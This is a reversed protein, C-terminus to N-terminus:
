AMQAWFTAESQTLPLGVQIQRMTGNLYTGALSGGLQMQALGVPLTVATFGATQGSDDCIYGGDATWTCVISTSGIAVPATLAVCAQVVSGAVIEITVRDDEDLFARVYNDVSGDSIEFLTRVTGDGVHSLDLSVLASAGEDLGASAWRSFPQTDDVVVKVADGYRVSDGPVGVPPLILCTPLYSPTVQKVSALSWQSSYDLTADSGNSMYLKSTTQRAVFYAVYNGTITSGSNLFLGGGDVIQVLGASAGAVKNVEVRYVGGAVTSFTAYAYAASADGNKIQLHGSNASIVSAADGQTWGTTDAFPGPNSANEAGTIIAVQVLKPAYIRLSFDYPVGNTISTIIYPRLYTVGAELIGKTSVYQRNGDPAFAASQFVTANGGKYVALASGPQVGGLARIHADLGWAQGPIGIANSTGEFYLASYSSSATGFFRVDFYALGDEQGAGLFEVSLGGLASFNTPLAGVAGIVGVTGGEGRPNRIKNTFQGGIVAGTADMIALKDIDFKRYAGDDGELYAPSARLTTVSMEVPVGRGDNMARANAFDVAYVSKAHRWGDFTGGQWNPVLGAIWSPSGAPTFSSYKSVGSM